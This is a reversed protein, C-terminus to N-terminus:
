CNINIRLYLRVRLVLAFLYCWFISFYLCTLMLQCRILKIFFFSLSILIKPLVYYDFGMNNIAIIISVFSLFDIERAFFQLFLAILFPWFFYFPISTFIVKKMEQFNNEMSQNMWTAEARIFAIPFCCKWRPGKKREINCLYLFSLFM